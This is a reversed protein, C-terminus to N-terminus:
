SVEKNRTKHFLLIACKGIRSEMGSDQNLIQVTQIFIDLLNKNIDFIKPWSYIDRLQFKEKVKKYKM